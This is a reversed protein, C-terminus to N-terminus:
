SIISVFTNANDGDMSFYRLYASSGATLTFTTSKATANLATCGHTITRNQAGYNTLWLEVVKGYTYNSLSVTCDASTVNAKIMSDSSFDVTIATQSTPLSRTQYIFGKQPNVSGTFEVTSSNFSAIKQLTTTGIETNWFEIKTGRNTDSFNEAAVFDIKTPSSGPFQTGTYGNGVIRMMVDGNAVAAPASASGRGMRGSILPYTNAGFSDVVIRTVSNAKGTIHMMYNSNSPAVTAFNDSATIKILPTNSDFSSNNISVYKLATTNGSITLDGGFIGTNNALFKNDSYTKLNTNAADVYLKMDSNADDIMGTAITLNTDSHTNAINTNSQVVYDIYTHLGDAIFDTYACATALNAAIMTVLSNSYIGTSDMYAVVNQSNVGGVIFNIRTNSSTTGVVLNGGPQGSYGQVYLYGDLPRLATGLSNYPNLNNYDKNAYGMDIYYTTDTGTNATAVYDMTGDNDTNIANLQVYTNSSNVFQGVTNPLQVELSGVNLPNNEYLGRALTTATLQVTTTNPLDVGVLVTNDTNANLHTLEDLQSIKITAM